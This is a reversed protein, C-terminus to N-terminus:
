NEIEQELLLGNSADIQLEIIRGDTRLFKLEYIVSGHEREAELDLLKGYQKEPYLLLISELPLLKGQKVLERIENQSIDEGAQLLTSTMGVVLVLFLSMMKM